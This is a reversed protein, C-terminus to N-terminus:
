VWDSFPIFTKDCMNETNACEIIASCIIELFPLQTEAPSEFSDIHYPKGEYANVSFVGNKIKFTNSFIDNFQEIPIELEADRNERANEIFDRVADMDMNKYKIEMGNSYRVYLVLGTEDCGGSVTSYRLAEFIEDSKTMASYLYM